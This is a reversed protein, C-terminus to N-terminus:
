SYLAKWTEFGGMCRRERHTFFIATRHLYKHHYGYGKEALWAKTCVDIVSEVRSSNDNTLTFLPFFSRVESIRWITPVFRGTIILVSPWAKKRWIAFFFSLISSFSRFSIKQWMHWYLHTLALRNGTPWISLMGADRALLFDSRPNKWQVKCFRTFGCIWFSPRYALDREPYLAIDIYTPKPSSKLLESTIDVVAWWPVLSALKGAVSTAEVAKWSETQRM